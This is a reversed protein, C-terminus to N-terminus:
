TGTEVTSEVPTKAETVSSTVYAHRMAEFVDEDDAHVYRMTSAIDDHGALRKAAALNGTKRVLSSLAHHRLDHAPRADAIKARDLATRSAHQFGRWHIASLSGDANERFWLTTLEAAKARSYLAAVLAKDEPLLRLNHGRGNKRGRLLIRGAEADVCDLSFFAERLRVGYRAAFDFVARHWKPLAARWAAIEAGTFTRDRGKPETLRLETWEIENTPQKLVRNAYRLIPRLTTDILDRNVTSNTPARGQRTVEHRRKQMAEEIEPTDINSVLTSPGILRLMIELRIATTKASKTDAARATFWKAAAAEITLEERRPEGLTALERERDEVQRAATKSRLGTSGRYREGKVTFDYHWVDGRKYLAM